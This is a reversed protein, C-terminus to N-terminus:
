EAGRFSYWAGEREPPERPSDRGCCCYLLQPRELPLKLLLLLGRMFEPEDPPPELDLPPLRLSLGRM